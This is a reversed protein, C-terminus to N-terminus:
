FLHKLFSLALLRGPAEHSTPQATHLGAHSLAGPFVFRLGLAQKSEPTSGEEGRWGCDAASFLTPGSSASISVIQLSEAPMLHPCGVARRHETCFRPLGGFRAWM